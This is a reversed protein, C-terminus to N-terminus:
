KSTGQRAPVSPITTSFVGTENRMTSKTQKKCGWSTQLREDAVSLRLWDRNIEPTPAYNDEASLPGDWPRYGRPPITFTRKPALRTLPRGQGSRSLKKSIPAPKIKFIKAGTPCPYLLKVVRLQDPQVFVCCLFFICLQNFVKVLSKWVLFIPVSSLFPVVLPCCPPHMRLGPLTRVRWASSRYWPRSSSTGLRQTILNWLFFIWFEGDIIKGWPMTVVFTSGDACVIELKQLKSFYNWTWLLNLVHAVTRELTTALESGYNITYQEIDEVRSRANRLEIGILTWKEIKVFIWM